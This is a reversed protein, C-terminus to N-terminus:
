IPDSFSQSHSLLLYFINVLAAYNESVALFTKFEKLNEIQSIPFEMQSKELISQNPEVEINNKGVKSNIEM